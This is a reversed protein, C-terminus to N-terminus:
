MRTTTGSSGSLRVKRCSACRTSTTSQSSFVWIARTIPRLRMVSLFHADDDGPLSRAGFPQPQGVIDYMVISARFPQGLLNRNQM